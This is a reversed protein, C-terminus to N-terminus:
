DSNNDDDPPHAKLDKMHWTGHNRNEEDALEYTVAGIKQKIILPGCYRPALKATFFNAADSKVYNKRYVKSGITFQVPRHRLNYRPKSREYARELRKKFDQFLLKFESSQSAYDRNIRESFNPREHDEGSIIHERGFNIFFPTLGTTENALTRMACSVKPLLKSWERHNDKVFCSLITKLTRHYREVPNSQPHYLPNYLIKVRYHECHRSLLNSCFQGGNDCRITHPVGYVLFVNEEVKETIGKATANRLPIFLTYKSFTDVISLIFRFGQSFRPLPGVLDISIVQWPKTATCTQGM